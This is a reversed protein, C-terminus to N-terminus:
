DSLRRTLDDYADIRRDRLFPWHTRAVDVQALDCEVLLMTEEDHPARALVNGYPDCVLSGGWFELGKERGVRNTAAVFVGNAIAHSRIMIEWAEHQSAGFAQKEEPLWGIATPYFIIQAGAMATLRAAEPFWQDWCICAGLPGASTAFSRFGLDGPTFYFKEYYRPDDPIHMKRYKGLLRGDRDFFVATNHYVGAARREFLSGLIVVGHEAAATALLNSTPGPVPEAESFRRHNESQCLYRHTFLEELCVIDAGRSAADAIRELATDLNAQKSAVCRTQVLAVVPKLDSVHFSQSM